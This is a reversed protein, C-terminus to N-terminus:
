NNYVDRVPRIYIKASGSQCILRCAEVALPGVILRRHHSYDFKIFYQISYRPLPQSSPLTLNRNATIAYGPVVRKRDSPSELPLVFQSITLPMIATRSPTDTVPHRHVIDHRFSSM